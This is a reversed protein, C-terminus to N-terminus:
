EDITCSRWGCLGVGRLGVIGISVKVTILIKIRMLGISLLFFFQPLFAPSALDYIFVCFLKDDASPKSAEPTLPNVSEIQKIM